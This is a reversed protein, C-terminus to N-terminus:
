LPKTKEYAEAAIKLENYWKKGYMRILPEKLFKYVKVKKVEGLTCAGSCIDWEHYNIADFSQYKNIRIPYLHCSIPKRFDILKDEWAREIGCFAIGNEFITYACEKKNILPTVTDGDFDVVSTGHKEIADQGVQQLYPKVKHYIEKLTVAESDQLPAGSDGFVCCNGHCDPLDCVFEKELVDLSVLTNAIQLM